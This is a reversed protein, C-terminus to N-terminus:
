MFGNGNTHRAFGSEDDAVYQLNAIRALEKPTFLDNPLAKATM